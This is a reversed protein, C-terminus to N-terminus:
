LWRKLWAFATLGAVIFVMSGIALWFGKEAAKFYEVEFNMGWIGAVAGLAGVILTVFTLRRMTHNLSQTAKTTFLDFLSLVTDRSSEIADVANEFHQDLMRFQEASDSEAIRRFDARSLAYFVDRHPLFLRRLKSVRKRLQVIQSLFHRDELNTRLILEDLRDVKREIDELARFYSVIHLDLLAAIFNEADLEGIQTEGKKHERFEEFYSVEGDHITIVFNRGVIFDIPMKADFGDEVAEVSVIFFRYFSEFVDITPREAVDLITKVPVDKLGLDSVVKEITKRDRHLINIWVLQKDNITELNVNELEIKEDNGKADYFYVASKLRKVGQYIFNNQRIIVSFVFKVVFV